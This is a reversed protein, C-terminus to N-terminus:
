FLVKQNLELTLCFIFYLYLISYFTFLTDFLLDIFLLYFQIVSVILDNDRLIDIPETDELVFNDINLCFPETIQFRNQILKQLSKVDKTESIRFSLLSNRFNKSEFRRFELRIRLSDSM